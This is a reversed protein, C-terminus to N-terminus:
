HVPAAIFSYRRLSKHKRHMYHAAARVSESTPFIVPPLRTSFKDGSYHARGSPMVIVLKYGRFGAPKPNHKRESARAQWDRGYEGSHKAIEILGQSELKKAAKKIPSNPHGSGGLTQWGQHRQLFDLLRKATATPNKRRMMAEDSAFHSRLSKVLKRHAPDRVTKAKRTKKRKHTKWYKALAAPMKGSKM